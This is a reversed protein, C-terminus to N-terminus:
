HLLQSAFTLGAVVVAAAGTIQMTRRAALCKVFVAGLLLGSGILALALLHYPSTLAHTVSEEHLGHGPHASANLTAMPGLVVPLTAASLRSISKSVIFSKNM